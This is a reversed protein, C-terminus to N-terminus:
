TLPQSILVLAREAAENGSGQLRVYHANVCDAPNLSVITSVPASIASLSSIDYWTTGQDNSGQVDFATNTLAAPTIFGTLRRNTLVVAGSVAAGNAITVSDYQVGSGTAM